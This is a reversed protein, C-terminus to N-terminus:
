MGRFTPRRKERYADIGEAFDRGGALGVLTSREDDLHQALDSTWASEILRKTHAFAASPGAALRRALLIAEEPMRDDAVSRNVLGIEEATRADFTESLIALQKARRTGLVRPLFWSAGGDPSAGIKAYALTFRTSAAAMVFDCALMLGIGAGAVAGHVAAVSPLRSHVLKLVAPHFESMTEGAVRAHDRVGDFASIDGGACFARGSGRLLLARAPSVEAAEIAERLAIASVTDIANLVSPRNITITAVGDAVELM